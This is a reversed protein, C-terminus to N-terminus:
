QRRRTGVTSLALVGGLAALVVIAPASDHGLMWLAAGLTAMIASWGISWADIGNGRMRIARLAFFLSGAAAISLVIIQVADQDFGFVVVSWKFEGHTAIRILLFVIAIWILALGSSVGRGLSVRFLGAGVQVSGGGRM